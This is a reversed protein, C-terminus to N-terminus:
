LELGLVKGRYNKTSYAHCSKLSHGRLHLSQPVCSKRGCQCPKSVGFHEKGLVHVDRTQNVSSLNYNTPYLAPVKAWPLFRATYM